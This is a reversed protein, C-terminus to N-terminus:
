LAAGVCVLLLESDDPDELDEAADVEDERRPPLNVPLPVDPTEGLFFALM